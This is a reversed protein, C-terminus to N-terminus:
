TFKNKIKNVIEKTITVFLLIICPSTLFFTAEYQNLKHFVLPICLLVMGYMWLLASLKNQTKRDREKQERNLKESFEDKEEPLTASYTDYNNHYFM